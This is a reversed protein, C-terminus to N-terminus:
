KMLDRYSLVQYTNVSDIPFYECNLSSVPWIAFSDYFGKANQVMDRVRTDDKNLVFFTLCTKDHAMASLIMSEFPACWTLRYRKTYSDDEYLALKTIHKERMRALVSKAFDVRWIFDPTYYAIYGIRIIFLALLTIAAKRPSLSPLFYYIFAMSMIISISLWESEIHFLMVNKDEKAYTIGMIAIYGVMSAVVWALQGFRRARILVVFGVFLIIVASWYLTLCRIGFMYIVPTGFAKVISDGSLHAIGQLHAADYSSTNTIHYKTAVIILIVAALIATRLPSFPWEDRGIIYFGIIFLLPIIVIFHTSITLFALPSFVCLTFLFNAKRRGLYLTTGLLLFMWAIAQHLENIIWFYSETVLLFYFFSMLIALKYERYGYVLIACVIFYFLNFSIAYLFGIVAMPMHMRMAMYPVIQTIFSGYRGEQIFLRKLNIIFTAIYSTDAFLLREKYLLMASLLLIGMM